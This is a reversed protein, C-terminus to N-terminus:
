LGLVELGAQALPIAVRGTGCGLELVPGGSERCVEVWCAVALADSGFRADHVLPTMDSFFREPPTSPDPGEGTM